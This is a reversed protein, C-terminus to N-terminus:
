SKQPPYVFTVHGKFMESWALMAEFAIPIDLTVHAGSRQAEQLLRELIQPDIGTRLTLNSGNKVLATLSEIPTM